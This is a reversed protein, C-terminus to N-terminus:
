RQPVFGAFLGTNTSAEGGDSDPLLNVVNCDGEARYDPAGRVLIGVVTNTGADFVPSGSNGGFADLNAEFYSRNARAVRAGAAIKTPLGSPHGIVYLPTGVAPPGGRAIKQPTRGAVRRDLRVVAFDVGTSDNLQRALLQVGRYVDSDPFTTRPTSPATL